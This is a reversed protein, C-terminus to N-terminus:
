YSPIYVERHAGREEGDPTVAEAAEWAFDGGEGGSRKVLEM